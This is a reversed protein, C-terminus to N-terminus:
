CMEASIKVCQFIRQRFMGMTLKEIHFLGGHIRLPPNSQCKKKGASKATDRSLSKAENLLGPGSAARFTGRSTVSDTSFKRWQLIRVFGM